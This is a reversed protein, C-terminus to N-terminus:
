AREDPWELGTMQDRALWYSVEADIVLPWHSRRDPAIGAVFRLADGFSAFGEFLDGDGEDPFVAIAFKPAHLEWACQEGLAAPLQVAGPTPVVSYSEGNEGSITAAVFDCSEPDLVAHLETAMRDCTLYGGAEVLHDHWQALVGILAGVKVRSHGLKM